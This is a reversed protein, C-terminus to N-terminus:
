SLAPKTKKAFIDMHRIISIVISSAICIDDILSSISGIKYSYAMWPVCGLLMIFRFLKPRDRLSCGIAGMTSGTALILAFPENQLFFYGTWICLLYVLLTVYMCNDGFKSSVGFKIANLITIFGGVLAGLTLYHITWLTESLVLVVMTHRPNSFQFSVLGLGLAAFGLIQAFLISM